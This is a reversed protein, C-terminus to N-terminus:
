VADTVSVVASVALEDMASSFLPRSLEDAEEERVEVASGDAEEAEAEEEDAASLDDFTVEQEVTVEVDDDEGEEEKEQEVARRGDEGEDVTEAEEEEAAAAQLFTERCGTIALSLDSAVKDVVAVVVAAAVLVTTLEDALVFTEVVSEDEVAAGAPEAEVDDPVEHGDALLHTQEFVVAVDQVAETEDLSQLNGPDVAISSLM